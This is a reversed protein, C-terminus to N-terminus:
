RKGAMYDNILGSVREIAEIGREMSPSAESLVVLVYDSGQTRIVGASNLRWGDEEPYWGNKVYVSAGPATVGASVGWRQDETVHSLLAFVIQTSEPDLLRGLALLWLLEAVQRPSAELTGWENKEGNLAVPKLDHSRLFETMGEVGGLRKWLVTASPNDSFEIMDQALEMDSETIKRDTRALQDLYAALIYVKAVSALVFPTDAQRDLVLGQDSSIMAVGVRSESAGAMANMELRVGELRRQNAAGLDIQGPPQQTLVTESERLSAFAVLLVLVVLDGALAFRL